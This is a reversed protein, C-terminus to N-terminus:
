NKDQKGKQFGILYGVAFPLVLIFVGIVEMM